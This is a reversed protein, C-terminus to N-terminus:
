PRLAESLRDQRVEGDRLLALVRDLAANLEATPARARLDEFVGRRIGGELRLASWLLSRFVDADRTQHAASKLAEAVRVKREEPMEQVKMAIANLLNRTLSPDPGAALRNIFEEQIEPTAVRGLIQYGDNLIESDTSRALLDRLAPVFREPLSHGHSSDIARLAEMGIREEPDSALAELKKRLDEPLERMNGVAGLVARKQESSGTELVGELGTRLGPPYDLYPRPSYMYGDGLKQGPYLIAMFSRLHDVESQTRVFEIFVSPNKMVDLHLEDQAGLLLDRRRDWFAQRGAPDKAALSRAEDDLRVLLAKFHALRERLDGPPIVAGPVSDPEATPGAPVASAPTQEPAQARRKWEETERRATALQAQLDAGRPDPISARLFPSKLIWGGAGGVLLLILAGTAIAVTSKATMASGGLLYASPVLPGPAAVPAASELFGDLRPIAAAFGAAGLIERLRGRAQEIRKWITVIACRRETALQELTAKDFYHRVVLHREEEELSALAAFLADREDDSPAPNMPPVQTEHARRARLRRRLDLAAHLAVRTLWRDFHERSDVRGIGRAIKLLTEQAADEADERRRLVHFCLNYVRDQSGELLRRLAARDPALPASM